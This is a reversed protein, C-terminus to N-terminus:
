ERFMSFCIVVPKLSFLEWKAKNPLDNLGNVEQLKGHSCNGILGKWQNSECSLSWHSNLETCSVVAADQNTRKFIVGPPM